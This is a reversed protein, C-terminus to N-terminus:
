RVLGLCPHAPLFAAVAPHIDTRSTCIDLILALASVSFRWNVPCQPTRRASSVGAPIPRNSTSVRAPPCSPWSRGSGDPTTINMRHCREFPRWDGAVRATAAIPSGVREFLHALPKLAADGGPLLRAPRWNTGGDHQEPRPCAAGATRPRSPPVDSRVAPVQGDPDRRGRRFGSAPDSSLPGLPQCNSPTRWGRRDCEVLPTRYTTM